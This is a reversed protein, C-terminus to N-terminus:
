CLSSVVKSTSLGCLAAAIQPGSDGGVLRGPGCSDADWVVSDLLFQLSGGGGALGRGELVVQHGVPLSAGTCTGPKSNGSEM